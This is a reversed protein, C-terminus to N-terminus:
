NGGAAGERTRWEERYRGDLRLLEGSNMKSGDIYAVGAVMSYDLLEAM